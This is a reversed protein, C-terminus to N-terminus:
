ARVNITIGDLATIAGLWITMTLNVASATSNTKKGRVKTFTQKAM